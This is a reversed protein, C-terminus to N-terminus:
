RAPRLALQEIAERLRALEARIAALEAEVGDPQGAAPSLLDPVAPLYAAAGGLNGNLWAHLGVAALAAVAMYLLLRPKGGRPRPEPALATDDVGMTAPEEDPAWTEIPDAADRDSKRSMMLDIADSVNGTLHEIERAKDLGRFRSPLLSM